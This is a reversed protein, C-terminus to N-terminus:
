PIREAALHGSLCASEITAPLGTRTWDGAFAFGPMGTGPEPRKAEDGPVPSLTAFPEKVVKSSIIKATSFEPICATLDRKATELIKEPSYGIAKHAGSIVTALTQGNEKISQIMTKNFVWHTETNLM